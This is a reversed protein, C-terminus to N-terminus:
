RATAVHRPQRAAATSNRGHRDGDGDSGGTRWGTSAALAAEAIGLDDFVELTRPQVGKGRSWRRIAPLRDVIRCAVGRRHLECALTLGTPGAGVVMVDTASM